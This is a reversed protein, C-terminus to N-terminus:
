QASEQGLRLLIRDIRDLLRAGSYNPEQDWSGYRYELEARRRLGTTGPTDHRAAALVALASSCNGAGPLDDAHLYADHLEVLDAELRPRAPRHRLMVTLSEALYRQQRVLSARNGNASLREARRGAYIGGRLAVPLLWLAGRPLTLAARETARLIDQQILRFADAASETDKRGYRSHWLVSLAIALSWTLQITAPLMSARSSRWRALDALKLRCTNATTLDGHSERLGQRFLAEAQERDGDGARTYLVSAHRLLNSLDSPARGRIDRLVSEAEDLDGLDALLWAWAQALTEPPFRRRLNEEWRHFREDFGDGSITIEPWAVTDPVNLLQRLVTTALGEPTGLVLNVGRSETDQPVPSDSALAPCHWRTDVQSAVDLLPAYVDPDAGSYGTILLAAGTGLQEVATRRSSHLRGLEEIDVVVVDLLAEQGSTLSGHVKLLGPARGSGAWRDFETRQAIVRLPPRGPGCLQQWIPLAERFSESVTDPLSRLGCLLEYAIEIGIDFNLTVQTGGRALHLACLMHAENPLELRLALLCDLADSGVVGALRGLVVELKRQSGLMATLDAATVTAPSVEAAATHLLEILRDRLAFGRPLCSPPDGSIGAGTFIRLRQADLGSNGREGVGEARSCVERAPLPLTVCFGELTTAGTAHFRSV